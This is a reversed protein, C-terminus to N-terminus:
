GGGADARCHPHPHAGPPEASHPGACCRGPQGAARRAVLAAGPGFCGRASTCRACPAGIILAHQRHQPYLPGPGGPTAQRWLRQDPVARAAAHHRHGRHAGCAALGAVLHRRRCLAAWRHRPARLPVRVRQHLGGGADRHLALHCHGGAIRAHHAPCLPVHPQALELLQGGGPGPIGDAGCLRAPLRAFAPQAHRPDGPRRCYARGCPSRRRPRGSRHARGWGM